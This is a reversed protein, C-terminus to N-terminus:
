GRLSVQRNSYWTSSMRGPEGGRPRCASFRSVGKDKEQEGPSNCGLWPLFTLSMCTTFFPRVGFSDDALTSSARRSGGRPSTGTSTEGSFIGKDFIWFRSVRANLIDETEWRLACEVDVAGGIDSSSLWSLIADSPVWAVLMLFFLAVETIRGRRWRDSEVSRRTWGAGILLSATKWSGRWM